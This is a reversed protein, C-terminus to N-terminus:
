PASSTSIQVAMTAVSVIDAADAKLCIAAFPTSSGTSAGREKRMAVVRDAGVTRMHHATFAMSIGICAIAAITFSTSTWNRVIILTRLSPRVVAFISKAHSICNSEEAFDQMERLTAAYLNDTLAETQVTTVYGIRSEKAPTHNYDKEGFCPLAHVLGTEPLHDGREIVTETYTQGAFQFRVAHGGPTAWLEVEYEGHRDTRRAELDFLEPHLARSYVM